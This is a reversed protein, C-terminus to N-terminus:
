VAGRLARAVGAIGIAGTVAFLAIFMMPKTRNDAARLNGKPIVPKPLTSFDVEGTSELLAM